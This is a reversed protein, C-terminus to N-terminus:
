APQLFSTKGGGGRKRMDTEEEDVDRLSCQLKQMAYCSPRAKLGKASSVSPHLWNRGIQAQLVNELADYQAWQLPKKSPKKNKSACKLSTVAYTIL